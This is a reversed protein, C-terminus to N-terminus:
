VSEVWFELRGSIYHLCRGHFWSVPGSHYGIGFCGGRHHQQLWAPTPVVQLQQWLHCSNSSWYPCPLSRDSRSSWTQWDNMAHRDFIVPSRPRQQDGIWPDSHKKCMGHCHGNPGLCLVGDTLTTQALGLTNVNMAERGSIGNDSYDLLTFHKRCKWARVLISTKRRRRSCLYKRTTKTGIHALSPTAM